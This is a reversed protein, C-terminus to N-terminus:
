SAEFSLQVHVVSVPEELSVADEIQLVGVRPFSFAEAGAVASLGLPNTACAVLGGLVGVEANCHGLRVEGRVVRQDCLAGPLVHQVLEAAAALGLGLCVPAPLRKSARNRWNGASPARKGLILLV